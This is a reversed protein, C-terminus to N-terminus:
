VDTEEEETSSEALQELIRAEEGRLRRVEAEHFMIEATIDGLREELQSM